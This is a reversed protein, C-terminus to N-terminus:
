PKAQRAPVVPSGSALGHRGSDALKKDTIAGALSLITM